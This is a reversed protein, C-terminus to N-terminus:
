KGDGIKDFNLSLDRETIYFRRPNFSVTPPSLSETKLDMVNFNGWGDVIIEDGCKLKLTVGSGMEKQTYPSRCVYTGSM